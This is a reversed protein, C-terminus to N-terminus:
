FKRTWGVSVAYQKMRLKVTGPTPGMPTTEAGTVTSTDAYIFAFDIRDRDNLIRTGGVAYHDEVVGPALINLTVDEPGIPNDAHAYGARWIMTDSAQWEAGIRIVEVDDWGFGAGGRAGLPGADTANGVAGVDSYFIKQYDLMLALGPQAKWTLGTTISAPIDFDGGNEFLGAYNDFKSMDFETQGALGFSLEPTIDYKLGARLGVGTSTDSGRNTMNAPDTSIGAFAGLGRASFRQVALVPTVGWSLNGDKRAYTAAIFLQTLDVGAKGGCFVSGCGNLGVEYSTNMGGNGYVAINVVGGDDLPKNYAFNPILFAGHESDVDGWPVFYTGEGTYGRDPMFVELGFTLEEGVGALSAPNITGSMADQSYAVGAGALGKQAVGYGLAFYGETAQAPSFATMATMGAAALMFRSSNM